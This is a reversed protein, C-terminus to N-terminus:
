LSSFPMRIASTQWPIAAHHSPCVKSAQLVSRQHKFAAEFHRWTENCLDGDRRCVYAVAKDMHMTCKTHYM